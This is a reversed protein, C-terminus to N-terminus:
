KDVIEFEVRRNEARGVDTSNTAIPYNSGFGKYNVRNSDIGKDIIFTAVSKARNTSLRNNVRDPGKSDTHGNIQIMLTPDDLLLNYLKNLEGYANSDIEFSSNAFHLDNLKIIQGVKLEPAQYITDAEKRINLYNFDTRKKNCDCQSSDSIPVLSIDDFLMYVHFILSGNSKTKLQFSDISDTFLGITMFKETGNARYASSRKQWFDINSVYSDGISEISPSYKNALSKKTFCKIRKRSFYIDLNKLAVSSSSSLTVYMSLCYLSDKILTSKLNNTAYEAYNDKSAIVLGIYARGSQPKCYKKNYWNFMDSQYDSSSLTPKYWHRVNNLFFWKNENRIDEIDGNQVIEQSFLQNSFLTWVVVFLKILIPTNIIKRVVM